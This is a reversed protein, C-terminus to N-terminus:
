PAICGPVHGKILERLFFVFSNAKNWLYRIALIELGDTDGHERTSSIVNVGLMGASHFQRLEAYELALTFWKSLVPLEANEAYKQTLYIVM